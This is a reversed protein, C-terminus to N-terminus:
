PGGSAHYGDVPARFAGWGREVPALPGVARRALAAPSGGVVAALRAWPIPARPVAAVRQARQQRHESCAGVGAAM